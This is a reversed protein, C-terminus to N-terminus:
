RRAARGLTWVADVVLVIWWLRLGAAVIGGLSGGPRFPDIAGGVGLIHAVPLDTVVAGALLLAAAFCGAHGALGTLL